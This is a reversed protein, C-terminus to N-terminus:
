APVKTWHKDFLQGVYSYASAKNILYMHLNAHWNGIIEHDYDHKWVAANHM